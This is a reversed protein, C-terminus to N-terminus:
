PAQRRVLPLYIVSGVRVARSLPGYVHGGSLVRAVAAYSGPPGGGPGWAFSVTATANGPVMVVQPQLDGAWQGGPDLIGLHVLAAVPEPRANAFTVQFQATDRPSLVEPGTLSAVQGALIALDRALGAVAEGQRWAAFRLQYTGEELSLDIGLPVATLSGAPLTAPAGVQTGWVRGAPDAIALTPTVVLGADSGNRLWAWAAIPQGPLYVRRDTRLGIAAVPTTATYTVSVAMQQYLTAQDTVADYLLPTLSLRALQWSGFPTVDLRYPQAPYVGVADQTETYVSPPGGLYDPRQLFTPIDLLGLDAPQTLVVTVTAVAAHQPLALRLERVPVVPADDYRSLRMGEVQVVDFGHLTATSWHSADVTATVVYTDEALAQAPRLRAPARRGLPDSGSQVEGAGDVRPRLRAPARRDLPDSGSQVESAGATEPLAMWPLGFLTYAQVTKQETPTWDYVPDFNRKADRLVVGVTDAPAGAEIAELWFQNALTEGCCTEEADWDSYALGASAIAGSAGYRALSWVLSEDWLRGLSLGARCGHIFLFPHHATFVQTEEELAAVHNPTLQQADSVCIQNNEAHSMSQFVVFGQGMIALLDDLDWDPAEITVPVEVDNRVDLGWDDRLADVLDNDPGDLIADRVAEMQWDAEWGRVSAVVARGSDPAPGAEGSDLFTIMDAASGGVIRGAALELDGLEWGGDLDAYPNDTFYYDHSVAENLPYYSNGVQPHEVEDGFSPQRYFPV